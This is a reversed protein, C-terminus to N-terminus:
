AFPDLDSDHYDFQGEATMPQGSTDAPKNKFFNTQLHVFIPESLLLRHLNEPQHDNVDKPKANLKKDDKSPGKWENWVYEDLQKIAIPCTEFIYLEPPKVMQGNIEQYFLADNTRKIGAMLDKSGAAYHEGLALLQAGVSNESRHQDDVYASPDIIRGEIRYRMAAEFAIMRSHLEKMLGEGVLEGTIYKTGKRDVSLYLVHDPVRPHPDLAKYTTFDKENLPFPRIVHIKRRFSKHVRGILHGFKGFVRAEKEDEPFGDAIRQIHKHEFFGRLGHIQCNDEMETEIYNAYDGDAHEDMWNKIWASYTLPTFTWFVIMGLRGRALTALFRDKPMPEDIWVFGLDVSEFEKTDQETSMIDIVWGTNTKIKCVYNKGEKANEFNAEPINKAENAPFWKELEPIIKEKITTPDSIIRGKKIYPFQQFLPHEFWENQIGFVINAVINAGTATKSTGNAGVLMNVFYKDSGVMEIFEATKSNPIYGKAKNNEQRRKKEKQLDLLRQYSEPSKEKLTKILLNALNTSSLLTM